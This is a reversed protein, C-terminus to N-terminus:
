HCRILKKHIVLALGRTAEGGSGECGLSDVMVACFFQFNKMLRRFKIVLWEM